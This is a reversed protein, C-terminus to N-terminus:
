VLLIIISRIVAMPCLSFQFSQPRFVVCRSCLHRVALFHHSSNEMRFLSSLNQKTTPFVFHLWM